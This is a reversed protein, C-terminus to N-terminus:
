CTNGAAIADNEILQVLGERKRVMAPAGDTVIGPISVVSLSFQKLTDKVAECLDRSKTTNKLPVLFTMEENYPKIIEENYPKILIVNYEDDIGRIFIALQAVHTADTSEDLALACFKFNATKRGRKICKGIEGIRRAVNQCSLSIKSIDEKKDPCIIYAMGGM